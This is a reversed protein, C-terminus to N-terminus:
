PTTTMWGVPELDEAIQAAFNQVIDVLVVRSVNAEYFNEVILQQSNPSWIPPAAGGMVNGPICYDTVQRATTDLVLLYEGQYVQETTQRNDLWFAIYRGDPSWSFNGIVAVPYAATLNTLPMAQGDRSVAFLEYHYWEDTIPAAIALQKGNPSWKPQNRIIESHNLHWLEQKAQLDWLVVGLGETMSDRLYAVRTLSPDYVAKSGWLGPPYINYVDPFPPLLEQEQGTFVNLIFVTGEPRSIPVIVLRENDLWSLMHGWDKDWSIARQQEGDAALLLLEKDIYKGEDNYRAHESALIRQDPSVTMAGFLGPTATNWPRVERDQSDLIYLKSPSGLVIRDGPILIPQLSTEVTLCHQQVGENSRMTPSPVPSPIPTSLPTPEPNVFVPSSLTPTAFLTVQPTVDNPGPSVSVPAPVGVCRVLSIAM